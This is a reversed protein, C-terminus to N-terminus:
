KVGDPAEIWSRPMSGSTASRRPARGPLAPQGRAVGRAIRRHLGRQLVQAIAAEAGLDREGAVM